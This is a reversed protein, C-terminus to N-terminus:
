RPGVWECSRHKCCVWMISGILFLLLISWDFAQAFAENNVWETLRMITAKQWSSKIPIISPYSPFVSACAVDSADQADLRTIRGNSADRGSFDREIWEVM